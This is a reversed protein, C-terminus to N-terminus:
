KDGNNADGGIYAQCLGIRGADDMDDNWIGGASANIRQRSCKGLVQGRFPAPRDDHLVLGAGIRHNTRLVYRGCLRVTERKQQRFRGREHDVRVDVFLKWVVCEPTERRYCFQHGDRLRQDCRRGERCARDTLDDPHSLRLWALQVVRGDADARSCMEVHLEERGGGADLKGVNRVLARRGCHDIERCAKYFEHEVRHSARQRLPLPAKDLHDSEAAALPQGFIRINRRHGFSPQLAEFGGSPEADHCRSARRHLRYVLKLRGQVLDRGIRGEPGLIEIRLSELRHGAGRGLESGKQLLFDRFPSFDCALFIDPHVSPSHTSRRNPSRSALLLAARIQRRDVRDLM